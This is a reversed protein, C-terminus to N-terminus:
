KELDDSPDKPTDSAYLRCVVRYVNAGAAITGFIFGFIFALPSSDFKKDIFYGIVAGVIIACVFEIALQTSLGWLHKLLHGEVARSPSTSEQAFRRRNKKM